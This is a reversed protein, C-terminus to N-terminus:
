KNLRPYKIWISFKVQFPEKVEQGRPRKTVAPTETRM